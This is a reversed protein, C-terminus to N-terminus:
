AWLRLESRIESNQLAIKKKKKKLGGRGARKEGALALSCRAAQRWRTNNKAQRGRVVSHFRLRRSCESDEVQGWCSLHLCLVYLLLCVWSM